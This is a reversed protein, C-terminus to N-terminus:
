CYSNKALEPSLEVGIVKKFGLNTAFVLTAGKGCGFYIFSSDKFQWDIDQFLSKFCILNSAEHGNTHIRVEDPINM